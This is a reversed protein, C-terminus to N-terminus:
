VFTVMEEFSKKSLVPVVADDAPYGTVLLLYARENTTRGLIQRLFGMPSPTHTMTALGATHLATILIGTAIGVSESVYYHRIRSGDPRLGYEEAFVAILYPATELFPKEPGTGLPALAELWEPPARREYFERDEAEAAERIEHKTSVDSIVVFQSPQMNAGSPATTAARVCDEIIERPVERDSFDRVTRRLSMAAHFDAARQRMESADYEPFGALPTFEATM